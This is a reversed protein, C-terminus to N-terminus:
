AASQSCAGCDKWRASWACVRMRATDENLGFHAGIEAFSCNEFYRLLAVECDTGNLQHMVEDLV